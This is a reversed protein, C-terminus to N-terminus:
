RTSSLLMSKLNRPYRITEELFTVVWNDFNDVEIRQMADDDCLTALNNKIEAVLNKTYSTFLIKDSQKTYVEEVLYKAHHM